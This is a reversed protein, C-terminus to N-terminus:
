EIQIIWTLSFADNFLCFIPSIRRRDHYHKIDHSGCGGGEPRLTFVRFVLLLTKILASGM